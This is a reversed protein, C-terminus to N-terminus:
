NKIGIQLWQYYVDADPTYAIPKGLQKGDSDLIVYFPQSNAKFRVAQFEAWKQGITTLQKGARTKSAIPQDLDRKDDVYLSILVVDNKLVNLVRDEVWVNQEMKRCNVCAHGTFDLM